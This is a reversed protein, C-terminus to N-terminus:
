LNWPPEGVQGHKPSKEPTENCLHQLETRPWQLKLEIEEGKGEGPDPTPVPGPSSPGFRQDTTAEGSM